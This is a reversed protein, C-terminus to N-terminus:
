YSGEEEQRHKHAVLAMLRQDRWDQRTAISALDLRTRRDAEIGGILVDDWITPGSLESAIKQYPGGYRGMFDRFGGPANLDLTEFPGIFSWRLGLGDRVSRDIDEARCVGRAILNFAEKLVAAQIRNMVFGDLERDLRICSQGARALVECARDMSAPSTWPAPVLEVAPVLHPPNLPHAVLCRQRGALDNTFASPVIFSTSSALVTEPAAIADLTAFVRRKTEVEERTSEQVFVAGDLADELGFAQRVRSLVADYPQDGLLGGTALDGLTAAIHKLACRPAEPDSDYIGVEFGARAFSIAWSRGILGCGVIAIKADRDM